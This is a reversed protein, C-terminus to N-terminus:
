PGNDTAALVAAVAGVVIHHSIDTEPDIFGDGRVEFGFREYFGQASDRGHAWMLPVGRLELLRAAEHLLARGVGQGQRGPVVAMWRFREAAGGLDFPPADPFLTMVGAVEGDVSAALHWTAPLDDNSTRVTAVDRGPRLVKHRIPRVVEVPV